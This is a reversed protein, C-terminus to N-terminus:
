PAVGETRRFRFGDSRAIAPVLSQLDGTAAFGKQLQELPCRDDDSIAREVAHELYHRAFCARVLQNGPIRQLLQDGNAFAGDLEGGNTMTGSSDVPKGAEMTRERGVQDFGELAFGPPDILGHCAACTPSRSHEVLRDRTSLTAKLPPLPPIDLGMPVQFDQCLLKHRVFLGRAIPDSGSPRALLTLLAPHNLLGRRSQNPLETPAFGVTGVPAVAVGYFSRLAANMPFAKGSFLDDLKANAATHVTTASMLLSTRLAAVIDTTFGKADRAVEDFGNLGLWSDYFNKLGRAFRPDRVMRDLHAQSLTVDTLGKAAAAALLMDDPAGDWVFFALRSALQYEDLAVVQGPKEGPTPRTFRYLFDPSQLLGTLLWEVGTIFDKDKLGAAFLTAMQTREIEILPRRFARLALHDILTRSCAADGVKVPDCPSWQAFTKLALSTIEGAANARLEVGLEDLAGEVGGAFRRSFDGNVRLLDAVTNNYQSRSLLQGRLVPAQPQTCAQATGPAAPAIMAGGAAAPAPAKGAGGAATPQGPVDPQDIQGTCALLSCAALVTLVGRFACVDHTRM